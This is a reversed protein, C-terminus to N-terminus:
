LVFPAIEFLDREGLIVGGHYELPISSHHSGENCSGISGKSMDDWWCKYILWDGFPSSGNFYQSGRKSASSFKHDISDNRLENFDSM